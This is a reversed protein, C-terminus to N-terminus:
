NITYNGFMDVQDTDIFYKYNRLPFENPRGFLLPKLKDQLERVKERAQPYDNFWIKREIPKANFCLVCGDRGSIEYHPSYLNKEICFKTAELESIRKEVLISRKKDDLQNHRSTEDYAIAIDLYDFQGVDCNTVAKIKSDRRFGCCNVFPYGKVQGKNKGNRAIDLCYEWYTMGSVIYVEAGMKRFRDATKLIFEYHKKTILPIDETFMPIYCVAKVTDGQELHLLVSCTSDKGGSWGVKVIAM